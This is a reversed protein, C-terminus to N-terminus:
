RTLTTMWALASRPPLLRAGRAPPFWALLPAAGRVDGFVVKHDLDALWLLGTPALLTTEGVEHTTGLWVCDVEADDAPNLTGPLCGYDVPATWPEDRLFKVGGDRYVFRRTEGARWEVVGLARHPFDAPQKM